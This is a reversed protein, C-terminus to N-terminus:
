RPQWREMEWSPCGEKSGLVSPTLVWVGMPAKRMGMELSSSVWRRRRAQGRQGGDSPVLSCGDTVVRMPVVPSDDKVRVSVKSLEAMAVPSLEKM